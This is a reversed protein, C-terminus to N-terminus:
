PLPGCTPSSSTLFSIARATTSGSGFGHAITARRALEADLACGNSQLYKLAATRQTKTAPATITKLTM